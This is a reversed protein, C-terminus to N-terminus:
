RCAASLGTRAEAVSATTRSRPPATRQSRARVRSRRALRLLGVWAGPTTMPVMLPSQSRAALGRVREGPVAEALVEEDGSRGAAALAVAEDGGDQFRAEAARSGSDQVEVAFAVWEGVPGFTLEVVDEVGRVRRAGGGSSGARRGRGWRQRVSTRRRARGSRLGSRVGDVVFDAARERDAGDCGGDGVGAEPEVFGGAAVLCWIRAANIAAPRAGLRRLGSMACCLSLTQSSWSRQSGVRSRWSGSASSRYMVAFLRGDGLISSCSRMGLAALAVTAASWWTSNVSPCSSSSAVRRSLWRSLCAGSM